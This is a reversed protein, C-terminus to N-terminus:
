EAEYCLDVALSHLSLSSGNIEVDRTMTKKRQKGDASCKEDSRVGEQTQSGDLNNLPNRLEESSPSVDRRPDVRRSLVSIFESFFRRNMNRSMQYLVFWDGFSCRYFYCKMTVYETHHLFRCLM